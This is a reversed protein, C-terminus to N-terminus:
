AGEKERLIKDLVKALSAAKFPKRLFDYAGLERIQRDYEEQYASMIVVKTNPAIDRVKKLVEIGNINDALQIDLFIIDPKEQEIKAIADKGTGVKLINECGKMELYDSFLECIDEEDEVIMIKMSEMLSEKLQAIVM